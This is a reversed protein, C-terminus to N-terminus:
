TRGREEETTTHKKKPQTKAQKKSRAGKSAKNGKGGPKPKPGWDFHTKASAVDAMAIEVVTPEDLDVGDIEVVDIVIQDTDVSRLLGRYRRREHGPVTKVIVAEGVAREFHEIRRLPREVGPSSVELTYRGPVPDHQDLLPSVLRNVETLADTTIGGQGPTPPLDGTIPAEVALRLTGGSWQVDVLENGTTAIIPTLLEYVRDAVPSGFGGTGILEASTAATEDATEAPTDTGAPADPRETPTM